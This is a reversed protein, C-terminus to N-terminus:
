AADGPCREGPAAIGPADPQPFGAADPPARPPVDPRFFPHRPFIYLGISFSGASSASLLLRFRGHRTDRAGSLAPSPRFVYEIPSGGNKFIHYHVIVFRTGPVDLTVNRAM